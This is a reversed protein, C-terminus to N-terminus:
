DYYHIFKVETVTEGKTQFRVCELEGCYEQGDGDKKFPKGLLAAVRSIPAGVHLEDRIRWAPTTVTVTIPNLAGTSRVVGYVTLGDYEFTKFHNIFKPDHRSPKKEDIEKKFTPLSRLSSFSTDKLFLPGEWVFDDVRQMEALKAASSADPDGAHVGGAHLMLCLLLTKRM